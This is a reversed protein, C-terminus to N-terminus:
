DKGSLKSNMPLLISIALCIPLATGGPMDERTASETNAMNSELFRDQGVNKRFVLATLDHSRNPALIGFGLDRNSLQKVGHPVPETQMALVQWAAGIDNKGAILFNDKNVTTEPMAM